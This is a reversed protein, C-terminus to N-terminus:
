DLQLVCLMSQQNLVVVQRGINFGWSVTIARLRPEQLHIRDVDPLRTQLRRDHADFGRMSEVLLQRAAERHEMAETYYEEFPRLRKESYQYFLHALAYRRDLQGKANREQSSLRHKLYNLANLIINDDSSQIAYDIANKFARSNDFGPFYEDLNFVSGNAGAQLENKIIAQLNILLSPQLADFSFSLFFTFPFPFSTLTPHSLSFFIALSLLFNFQPNNTSGVGLGPLFVNKTSPPIIIPM